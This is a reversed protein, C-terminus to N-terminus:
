PAVKLGALVAFPSSSTGAMARRKKEPAEQRRRPARRGRPWAFVMEGEGHLPRFGLAEVLERLEDRSLGAESALALFLLTFGVCNATRTAYSQAVSHTDNERYTMGLGRPDIMFDVLREFRIMRPPDDALVEEHLRARLEPPLAMVESPTEVSPAATTPQEAPQAPIAPSGIAWAPAPLALVAALPLVWLPRTPM